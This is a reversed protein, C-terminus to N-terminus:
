FPRINSQLVHTYTPTTTLHLNRAQMDVRHFNLARVETDHMDFKQGEFLYEDYNKLKGNKSPRICTRSM